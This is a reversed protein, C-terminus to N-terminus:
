VHATPFISSASILVNRITSKIEPIFTCSLCQHVVELTSVLCTMEGCSSPVSIVPAAQATETAPCAGAGGAAALAPPM